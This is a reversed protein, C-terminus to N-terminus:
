ILRMVDTRNKNSVTQDIAFDKTGAFHFEKLTDAYCQLAMPSGHRLQSSYLISKHVRM